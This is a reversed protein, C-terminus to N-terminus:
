YSGYNYYARATSGGTSVPPRTSSPKKSTGTPTRAGGNRARYDASGSLGAAAAGLVGTILGGRARQRAAKQEAKFQAAQNLDGFAQMEGDYRINLADLEAEKASQTNLAGFSGQGPGSGAAGSQASAAWARGMAKRSQTRQAEEARSADMRARAANDKAIQANQGAVAADMNGQQYEQIGGILQSGASAVTSAIMMWSVPDAM